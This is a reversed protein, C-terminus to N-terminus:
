LIQMGLAHHLLCAALHPGDKMHSNGVACVNIMLTRPGEDSHSSKGYRIM